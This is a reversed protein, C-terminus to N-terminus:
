TSPFFKLRFTGPRFVRINVPFPTLPHFTMESRPAPHGLSSNRLKTPFGTVLLDMNYHKTREDPNNPPPPQNPTPPPPPSDRFYQNIWNRHRSGVRIGRRRSEEDGIHIFHINESITDM